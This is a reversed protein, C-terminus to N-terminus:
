ASLDVEKLAQEILRRQRTPDLEEQLVKTTALMVLDAVQRRLELVAQERERALEARARELMAQQEQEGKQRLEERLQEGLQQARDLIEQAKLRADAMEQRDLLRAQEAEKRAQEAEGLAQAIQAQRARLAKDLPPFVYRRLLWLLALFVVIEIIFTANLALPNSAAALVM